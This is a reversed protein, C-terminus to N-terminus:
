PPACASKALPSVHATKQTQQLGDLLGSLSTSASTRDNVYYLVAHEFATTMDPTMMDEASFCLETSDTPQLLLRAIGQEVTLRYDIPTVAHDASFAFGGPYQVWRQQASRTALYALLNEANPNDTFRGMFDGSVLMPSTAGFIPPFPKYRYGTTSPLGTASLAGHELKCKGSTIEKSADNFGISLAGQAGDKIADGYGMLAGWTNWANRVEPSTWPLEGGLWKQYEDAQYKSLLIQAVWDAGPWGSTSGSALGLCWPTGHRSLSELAAWSLSPSPGLASTYWLLGKVDAKVPVAYVTSTGAEALGRWPQDYSSLPISLPKLVGENKYQYVAGPGPLDVLDPPDHVTLDADLQETPERSSEINVQVGPHQSEFTRVVENFADYEIPDLKQDWPVLVTVTGGQSTGACGSGAACLSLALLCCMARATATSM